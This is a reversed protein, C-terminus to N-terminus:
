DLRIRVHVGGSRRGVWTYQPGHFGLKIAVANSLFNRFPKSSYDGRSSGGSKDSSLSYSNCDGLLMWPGSFSETLNTVLNWFAERHAVKPPGYVLLLLWVDTPPDFYVLCAIINKNDFIVELSIGKVWYLALGSSKNEANVCFCGRFKLCERIKEVRPSKAKSESIFIIDLSERHVLAKLARVTPARGVGQCNWSLIRM